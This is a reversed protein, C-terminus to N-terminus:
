CARSKLRRFGNVLHNSATMAGVWIGGSDTTTGPIYIVQGCGVMSLLKRQLRRAIGTAHPPAAAPELQLLLQRRPQQPDDEIFEELYLVHAGLWAVDVPAVITRVRRESSQPWMAAGRELSMVVQESSDRVGSWVRELAAVDGAEAGPGVAAVM